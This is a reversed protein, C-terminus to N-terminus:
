GHPLLSACTADPEHCCPVCSRHRYHYMAESVQRVVDHSEGTAMHAEEPGPMLNERGVLQRLLKQLGSLVTPKQHVLAQFAASTRLDEHATLFLRLAASEALARCL